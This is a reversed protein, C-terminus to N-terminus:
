LKCSCCTDNCKKENKLDPLRDCRTINKGIDKALDYIQELNVERKEGRNNIAIAKGTLYILKCAGVEMLVAVEDDCLHGSLGKLFDNFYGILDDNEGYEEDPLNGFYGTCIFGWKGKEEIPEVFWKYCFEKFQEDDQVKFYNSRASGYWDSM